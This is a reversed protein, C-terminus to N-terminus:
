EQYFYQKNFMRTIVHNHSKFPISITFKQLLGYEFIGLKANIKM